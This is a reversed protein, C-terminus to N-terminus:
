WSPPHRSNNWAVPRKSGVNMSAWCADFIIELTLDSLDRIFVRENKSSIMVELFSTNLSKTDSMATPYQAKPLEGQIVTLLNSITLYRAPDYINVKSSYDLFDDSRHLIAQM